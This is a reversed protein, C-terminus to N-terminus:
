TPEPELLRTFHDAVTQLISESCGPDSVFFWYEGPSDNINFKHGCYSFDIWAETIGDTFFRTLKAGKLRSVHERVTYWDTNPRLAFLM